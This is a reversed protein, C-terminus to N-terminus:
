HYPSWRSRCEKGVRREESRKNGWHCPEGGVAADLDKIVIPVGTFPGDAADRAEDRARDFREHIVANIEPNVKEIRAIAADVLELPTAEGSRVLDAQATADLFALDHETM